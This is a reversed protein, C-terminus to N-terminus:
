WPLDAVQAMDEHGFHIGGPYDCGGSRGCDCDFRHWSTGSNNKRSTMTATHGAHGPVIETFLVRAVGGDEIESGDAITGSLVQFAKQAM